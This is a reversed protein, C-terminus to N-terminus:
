GDYEECMEVSRVCRVRFTYDKHGDNVYGDDFNVYWVYSANAAYVSSSWFCSSKHDPFTTAPDIEDYDVLTLLEKISPMKWGNGLSEAYKNAKYWTLPRSSGAQWELGTQTDL